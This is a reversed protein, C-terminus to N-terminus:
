GVGKFFFLQVLRGDAMDTGFSQGATHYYWPRLLIMRNFRMPVTMIHEWKAPNSSDKQIIPDAADWYTQAGAAKLEEPYIPARDSNTEIHRYFETGGRCHEPLTLYLIGSWVLGPDLHVYYAREDDDGSLSLRCFGHAMEKSGVVKEGTIGSVLDDLGPYDLKRKSNRGPYNKNASSSGFELSLLTERIEFPNLLFDDVIILGSYM